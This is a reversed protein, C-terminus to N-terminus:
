EALVLLIISVRTGRARLWLLLYCLHLLDGSPLCLHSDAHMRQHLRLHWHHRLRARSRPEEFPWEIQLAHHRSVRQTLKRALDGFRELVKDFLLWFIAATATASFITALVPLAYAHGLAM